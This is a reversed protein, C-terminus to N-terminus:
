GQMSIWSDARSVASLIVSVDYLDDRYFVYNGVCSSVKWGNLGDAEITGYPIKVGDVVKGFVCAKQDTNLVGVVFSHTVGKQDRMYEMAGWAAM